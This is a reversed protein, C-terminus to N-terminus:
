ENSELRKEELFTVEFGYPNDKTRKEVKEIQLTVLYKLKDVKARRTITQETYVKYYENSDKDKDKAIKTIITSFQLPEKKIEEAARLIDSKKENWLKLSLLDSYKAANDAFTEQDFNYSLSVFTRIFNIAETKFIPDEQETVIRTGNQDIGIILTESKKSFAYIATVILAFILVGVLIWEKIHKKALYIKYTSM